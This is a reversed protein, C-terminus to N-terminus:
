SKEPGLASQLVSHFKPLHPQRHFHATSSSAWRAIGSATQDEAQLLEPVASAQSLGVRFHGPLQDHGQRRMNFKWRSATLKMEWLNNVYWTEWRSLHSLNLSLLHKNLHNFSFQLFSLLSTCVLSLEHSLRMEEPVKVCNTKEVFWIAIYYM